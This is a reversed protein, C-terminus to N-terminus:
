GTADHIAHNLVEASPVPEQAADLAAHYADRWRAAADQWEQTEKTWDGGGANAIIGWATEALDLPQRLRELPGPRCAAGVHDDGGYVCDPTHVFDPDPGVRDSM